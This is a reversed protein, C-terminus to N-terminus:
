WIKTYPPIGYFLNRRVAVIQDIVEEPTERVVITKEDTLHIRTNAGVEVTYIDRIALTLPQGRLGTLTLM